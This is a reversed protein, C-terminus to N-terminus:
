HCSPQRQFLLYHNSDMIGLLHRPKVGLAIARFNNLAIAKKLEGAM